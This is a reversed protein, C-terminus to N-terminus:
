GGLRLFGPSVPLARFDVHQAGTAQPLTLPSGNNERHTQPGCTQPHALKSRTMGCQLSLTELPGHGIQPDQYTSCDALWELEEEPRM